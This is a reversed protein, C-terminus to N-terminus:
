NEKEFDLECKCGQLTAVFKNGFSVVEKSKCAVLSLALCISFIIALLKKM